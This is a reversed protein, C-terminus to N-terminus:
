GQYQRAVNECFRMFIAAAEARTASGGPLLTNNGVGNILGWANAWSVADAAWGSVKGADTFGSLDARRSVDYGKYQAYRYLIVAMQERTIVDNPAFHSSDYGNVVGSSAAWAVADSYYQGPPVDSFSSEGAEPTGEFRHLMTVIMGRTTTQAPSFRGNGTGSMLGTEYAYNVAECFWDETSVDSFPPQVPQLRTFYAGIEVASAPMRFTFRGEDEEVQETDIANGRSDTVTLVNLAYGENPSVTVTIREGAQAWSRSVSVSGNETGTRVNVRYTPITVPDSPRGLNVTPFTQTEMTRQDWQRLDGAARISFPEAASLVGLYVTDGREMPESGSLYITVSTGDWSETHHGGGALSEDPQFVFQEPVKDLTLTLQVGYCNGTLGNLTLTQRASGQGSIELWPTGAAAAPTALLGATLALLLVFASFRRKRM